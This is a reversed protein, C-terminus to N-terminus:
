ITALLVVCGLPFRARLQPSIHNGRAVERTAWVSMGFDLALGAFTAISFAVAYQDLAGAGYERAIVAFVAVQAMTTFARAVLTAAANGPMSRLPARWRTRAGAPARPSM